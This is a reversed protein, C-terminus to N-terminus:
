CATVHYETNIKDKAYMKIEMRKSEGQLSVFPM